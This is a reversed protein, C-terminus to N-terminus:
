TNRVLQFPYKIFSSLSRNEIFYGRSKNLRKFTVRLNEYCINFSKFRNIKM